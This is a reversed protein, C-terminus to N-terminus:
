EITFVYSGRIRQESGDPSVAYMHILYSGRSIENAPITVIVSQATRDTVALNRSRQQEDLLEVRYSQAQPSQAPLALEIRVGATGALQVTKPASGAARDAASIQLNISAYTGSAPRRPWALLAIGVVIVIAAMTTVIRLAFSQNRWFARIAELIGPSSSDAVAAPGDGRELTARELLESAFQAKRQREPSKLFYQEVRQREEGELENAVYEDTIEDVVTDFEEGFLPDTLLQLELREEEATELQGLM